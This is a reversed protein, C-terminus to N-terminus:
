NYTHVAKYVGAAANLSVPANMQMERVFATPHLRLETATHWEDLEQTSRCLYQQFSWKALPM